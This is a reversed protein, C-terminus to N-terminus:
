SGRSRARWWGKSINLSGPESNLPPVGGEGLAHDRSSIAV